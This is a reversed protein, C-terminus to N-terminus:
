QIYGLSRLNELQAEAADSPPAGPPAFGGRRAAANAADYARLLERLERRLEPHEAGVERAHAYDAALYLEDRAAARHHILTARPDIVAVQNEESDPHPGLLKEAFVVREPDPPATLPRTLPPATYDEPGALELITAYLDSLRVPDTRRGGGEFVGPWYVILPVHTEENHLGLGHGLEGREWLQEGHDGVFFLATNTLLGREELQDLLLGLVEDEYRLEGAYLGRIYERDAAPLGAGRDPEDPPNLLGTGGAFSGAYTSGPLYRRPPAYPEHPDYLHLYAFVGGEAPLREVVDLSREVPIAKLHQLTAEGLLRSLWRTFFGYLNWDDFGSGLVLQHRYAYNAYTDFGRYLGTLPKIAPNCFVGWSRFGARRLEGALTPGPGLPTTWDVRHVAQEAGTFLSAVAPLTWNSTSHCREFSVGLRALRELNPTPVSGGYLSALDARHADSLVVVVNLPPADPEPAPYEAVDVGGLYVVGFLMLSVGALVLAGRGIWRVLGPRRRASWVLGAAALIAALYFVLARWRGLASWDRPLGLVLATTAAVVILGLLDYEGNTEVNGRRRIFRKLGLYLAAVALSFLVGVLLQWALAGLLYLWGAASSSGLVGHYFEPHPAFLVGLRHLLAHLLTAAAGFATLRGLEGLYGPSHQPDNLSM